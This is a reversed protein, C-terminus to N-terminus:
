KSVSVPVHRRHRRTPLGCGAVIGLSLLSLANPEPVVTPTLQIELAPTAGPTLWSGGANSTFKSGLLTIDGADPGTATPAASPNKAQLTADNLSSVSNVMVWYTTNAALAYTGGAAQFVYASAGSNQPVTVTNFSVLPSGFSTLNSADGAFIGGRVQADSGSAWRAVMTLSSFSLNSNAGVTFGYSVGYNTTGLTVSDQYSGTTPSNSITAQGWALTPAAVLGAVLLLRM